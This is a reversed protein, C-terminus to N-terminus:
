GKERQLSCQLPIVVLIPRFLSLTVDEKDEGGQTEKSSHPDPACPCQAVPSLVLLVILLVIQLVTVLM